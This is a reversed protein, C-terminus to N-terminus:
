FVAMYLASKRIKVGTEMHAVQYQCLLFHPSM